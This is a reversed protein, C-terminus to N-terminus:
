TDPPADESEILLPADEGVHETEVSIARARDRLETLKAIEAKKAEIEKVIAQDIEGDAKQAPADPEKPVSINIEVQMGQNLRKALHSLGQRLQTELENGRAADINKGHKKRVDSAIKGIETKVRKEVEDEILKTIKDPLKKEQLQNSLNKIELNTKFLNIIREIALVWIGIQEPTLNLFVQWWSSAITRVDPEYEDSDGSLEAIAKALKNISDFEKSLEGLKTGVVLRPILFGLESEGESVREFEVGLKDMSRELQEILELKRVLVESFKKLDSALGHPDFNASRVVESLAASFAPNVLHELNLERIVQQSFPQLLDKDIISSSKEARQIAVKFRQLDSEDRSSAYSTMSSVAEDLAGTLDADEFHNKLDYVVAHFRGLHMAM